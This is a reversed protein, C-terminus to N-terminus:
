HNRFPKYHVETMLKLFPKDGFSDGYGIRTEFKQIQFKEELRKVKEIGFCNEGDIKATFYLSSRQLKTGILKMNHKRCFSKLYDEPSATLLVMTADQNQYDEICKLADPKILKPIENEGFAACLADFQKQSIKGCINKLLREKIQKKSFYGSFYLILEPVSLWLHLYFSSGPKIFKLFAIFSDRHTLTGDFDFVM